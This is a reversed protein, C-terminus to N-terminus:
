LDASTGSTGSLPCHHEQIHLQVHMKAPHRVTASAGSLAPAAVAASAVAFVFAAVLRKM